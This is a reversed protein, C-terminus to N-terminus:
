FFARVQVGGSHVANVGSSKRGNYNINLELNELIKRQILFSWTMNSGATLGDLMEFSVASNGEGDYNIEIFNVQAQVNGQGIISYTSELGFSYIQATQNEIEAPNFTNEKNKWEGIGKLRFVNNPQYLLSTQLGQSQISYDRVDSYDANSIKRGWNYSQDLRYAKALKWRFNLNNTRNLRSEFGNSLLQKNSVESITFDLGWKVNNKNFYVLQRVSSNLSILSSDQIDTLFPNWASNEDERTTKRAITASSLSNFRKAFAAIGKKDKWWNRPNIELNQSFSNSYTSQFENTLTFTRIYNAEYQFKAIEFEELEKIGNDNYDVWVYVGQGAPVELYLYERQPELGSSFDYFTSFVLGKNLAKGNYSLKGLFTNEEDEPSLEEDIIELRRTSVVAELNHNKHLKAKYNLGYINGENVDTLEALNSLQDRRNRYFFKFQNKSSDSNSVYFETELFSLSSALLTDTEEQFVKNLRYEDTVGLKIKGIQHSLDLHQQIFNSEIEGSTNLQSVDAKLKTKEGLWVVDLGNRLGQYVSGEQLSEFTYKMFKQDGRKLGLAVGTLHQDKVLNQLGTRNWNINFEVERFRELQEFDRQQWDHNLGLTLDTKTNLKITKGIGANVAFGVNDGDQKSSFTNFDRNSLAGEVYVKTNEGSEYEYRSMLMQRQQPTILRRIPEYDGNRVIEGALTDPAVWRYKRGNPTFEDQVYDGNGEGVFTFNLRYLPPQDVVTFVFVSDYGLTDVITYLVESDSFGVTDLRQIFARDLDDGISNLLRREDDDLDQQLPQNKSDQEAMLNVIWTSRGKKLATHGEIISRAYNRVSYQFEVTIRKDKTILFNPTFTLEAANYDIIYDNNAGRELLKGDVFVRETGSLVIIFQENESGRLRYPGQNGEIGPFFNRAFKGKSVAFAGGVEWLSTSDNKVRHNYSIGRAKKIYRMYTGRNFDMRFDGAVLANKNDYLKIFINDFEQLQQTNGEAQIPINDDSINALINIKPTLKGSLELNFNSNVTLNQRNGVVVGRSISGNRELQSNEFLPLERQKPAQYKFPDDRLLGAQVKSEDKHAYPESFNVPYVRYVISITDGVPIKNTYFISRFPDILYEDPQYQDGNNKKLIWSDPVISLSDLQVSDRTSVVEKVRLNSLDQAYGMLSLFTLFICSLFVKLVSDHIDCIYSKAM